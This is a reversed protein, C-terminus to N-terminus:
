LPRSLRRRRVAAAAVRRGQVAAAAAAAAPAALKQLPRAAERLLRHVGLLVFELEELLAAHLELRAGQRGGGAGATKKQPAGSSVGCITKLKKLNGLQLRSLLYAPHTQNSFFSGTVTYWRRVRIAPLPSAETASAEPFALGQPTQLAAYDPSVAAEAQM